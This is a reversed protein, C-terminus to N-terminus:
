DVPTKILKHWLTHIIPWLALAAGIIAVIANAITILNNMITQFDEASGLGAHVFLGAIISSGAITSLWKLLGEKWGKM